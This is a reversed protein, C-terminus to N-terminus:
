LKWFKNFLLTFPLTQMRAMLRRKVGTETAYFVTELGFVRCCLGPEFWRSGSRFNLASVM